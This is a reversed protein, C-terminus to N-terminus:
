KFNGETKLIIVENEAVQLESFFWVENALYQRQTAEPIWAFVKMM